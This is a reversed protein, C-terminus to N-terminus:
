HIEASAESVERLPILEKLTSRLHGMKIPMSLVVRHKATKARKKWSRQNQELLLLMPIGQTSTDEALRNFVDLATEGLEQTNLVICQATNPQLCLREFAREPDSTVLVRYGAKKLGDRFVDQMRVNSEIVMVTQQEQLEAPAAQVQPEAGSKEAPANSAPEDTLRKAVIALEALLEGPSQYRRGPEFAMAKNLVSAVFPPLAPVIQQIPPITTFRTKNLRQVRNKVEVLPATGSLMHYYICGAFYIDSRPDDRRVGSARELAAYDITRTSPMDFDLGDTLTEDASALGFDVLKAQGRSSVLVNSMRLDRHTVASQFAYDLGSCIDVMLRTAEPPELRKRIKVFERLNRGEVFEMVFFHTKGDSHVEYIPVINPHRLTRGLEGERLFYQYQVPIESFRNRLAKIAVVQGTDKHVARFVRAFTGTGVLYLVKYDGFFFGTREGKVLRDVQYNTMLGRRVLTQLFDDPAVARSGFSGWIDQLQPESLLGLDFARQAIIEATPRGM